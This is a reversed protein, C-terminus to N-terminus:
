KIKYEKKAAIRCKDLEQRSEEVSMPNVAEARKKIMMALEMGCTAGINFGIDFYQSTVKEIKKIISDAVDSAIATSPCTCSFIALLIIKKKM